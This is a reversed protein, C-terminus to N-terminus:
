KEMGTVLNNQAAEMITNLTENQTRIWAEQMFHQAPINDGEHSKLSRRKRRGILKKGVKGGFEFIRALVDNPLKSERHILTNPGIRVSVGKGQLINAQAVFSDRLEGTEVPCLSQM